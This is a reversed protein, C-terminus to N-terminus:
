NWGKPSAMLLVTLGLFVISEIVWKFKLGRASWPANNWSSILKMEKDKTRTPQGVSLGLTRRESEFDLIKRTVNLDRNVAVNLKRKNCKSARFIVFAGLKV